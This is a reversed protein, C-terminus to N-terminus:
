CSSREYVGVYKSDYVSLVCNYCVCVQGGPVSQFLRPFERSTEFLSLKEKRRSQSFHVGKENNIFRKQKM